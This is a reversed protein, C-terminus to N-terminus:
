IRRKYTQERFLIRFSTGESRDLEVTGGLQDVLLNVLLLGFTEPKRWDVDAPFGIGDDAVTLTCEGTEGAGDLGVTITGEGRAPFAHRLANSVLENLILGLPIATEIAFLADKVRSSFTVAKSDVGYVEYLRLAISRIYHSFDIRSLDESLYLREHVLAMSQIRDDCNRVLSLAKEDTIHGSQLSLLSSIIQLNNKVRHHIEAILKEKERLSQRIREEARQHDAIEQQLRINTRKLEEESEELAQKKVTTVSLTEAMRNFDQILEAVDSSTVHEVRVGFDGQNIARTAERLRVIARSLYGGVWFAFGLILVIGGGALLLGTNAFSRVLRNLTIEMYRATSHSVDQSERICATFEDVRTTAAVNFRVGEATRHEIPVLYMFKNSITGDSEEWRYFGHAYRGGRGAEIIDRCAGLQESVSQPGQGEVAPDWHFRVIGTDSDLVSTYGTKGVPQIAIERFDSDRQLEAVTMGPQGKLYLDLQLAVDMAKQRIFDEGMDKIVTESRRWQEEQGRYIARRTEAPFRHILVEIMVLFIAMPILGAILTIAIVRTSFKKPAIGSLRM